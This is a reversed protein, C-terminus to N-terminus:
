GILLQTVDLNVFSASLSMYHTQSLYTFGARWLQTNRSWLSSSTDTIKPIAFMIDPKEVSLRIMFKEMERGNLGFREERCHTTYTPDARINDNVEHTLEGFFLKIEEIRRGNM